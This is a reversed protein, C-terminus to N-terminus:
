IFYFHLGSIKSNLEEVLDIKLDEFYSLFKKVDLIYLDRRNMTASSDVSDEPAVYAETFQFFIEKLELDRRMREQSKDCRSAAFRLIQTMNSGLDAILFKIQKNRIALNLLHLSFLPCVTAICYLIDVRKDLKRVNELLKELTTPYYKLLSFLIFDSVRL